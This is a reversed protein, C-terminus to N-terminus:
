GSRRAPVCMLFSVVVLAITMPEPLPSAAWLDDLHDVGQTAAASRVPGLDQVHDKMRGAGSADAPEISYGRNVQGQGVEGGFGQHIDGGGHVIWGREGSVVAVVDARCPVSFVLLLGAGALSRRLDRM